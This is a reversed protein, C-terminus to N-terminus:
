GGEYSPAIVEAEITPLDAETPNEISITHVTTWVTDELVHVVRKTGPTSVFTCPASLELLGQGETFVQVSGLSIVNVHAHKHIKGVVVTGAALLMERGYTYPAFHHRVPFFEVPLKVPCDDPLSMISEQLNMIAERRSLALEWNRAVEVDM